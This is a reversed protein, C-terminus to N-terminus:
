VVSKRDPVTTQGGNLLAAAKLAAEDQIDSSVLYAQTQDNLTVTRKLDCQRITTINGTPSNTVSRERAGKVWVETSSIQSGGVSVNKKFHLDQAQVALTLAGISLIQTFSCLRLASM